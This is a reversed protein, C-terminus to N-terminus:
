INISYIINEPFFLEIEPYCGLIVNMFSIWVLQFFYIQSTRIQDRKDIVKTDAKEMAIGCDKFVAIM